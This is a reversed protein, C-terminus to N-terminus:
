AVTTLVDHEYIRGAKGDRSLAGIGAWFFVGVAEM